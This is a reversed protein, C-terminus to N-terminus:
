HKKLIQNQSNKERKYLVDITITGFEAKLWGGEDTGGSSKCLAMFMCEELLPENENEKPVPQKEKPREINHKEIMKQALMPIIKINWDLTAKIKGALITKSKSHIKM